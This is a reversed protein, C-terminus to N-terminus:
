SKAEQPQPERAENVARLTAEYEALSAFGESQVMREFTERERRKVYPIVEDEHLTAPVPEEEGPKRMDPFYARRTMELVYARLEKGEARLAANEDELRDTYALLPLLRYVIKRLAILMGKM